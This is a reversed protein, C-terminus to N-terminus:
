KLNSLSTGTLINHSVLEIFSDWEGNTVGEKVVHWPIMHDVTQIASQRM